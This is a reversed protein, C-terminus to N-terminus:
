AAVENSQVVVTGRVIAQLIDLCERRAEEGSRESADVPSQMSTAGAAFELVGVRRVVGAKSIFLLRLEMPADENCEM